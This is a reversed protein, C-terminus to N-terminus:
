ALTIGGVYNALYQEIVSINADSLAQLSAIVGGYAIDLFNGNLPNFGFYTTSTVVWATTKTVDQWAGRNIRVQFKNLSANWRLTYIHWANGVINTAAVGGNDLETRITPGTNRATIRIYGATDGVICADDTTGLDSSSSFIKEAIVLTGETASMLDSLANVYFGQAAAVSGPRPVFKGSPTAESVPVGGPTFYQFNLMGSNGASSRGNWTGTTDSYDGGVFFASLPLTSPDTAQYYSFRVMGSTVISPNTSTNKAYLEYTRKADNRLYTSTGGIVLQTSLEHPVNRTVFSQDSLTAVLSSDEFNRLEFYSIDNTPSEVIINLDAKLSYDGIATPLLGANLTRTGVRQFIGASVVNPSQVLYREEEPSFVPGNSGGGAPGTAGQPGTAGAPGTAGTVGQAGQPGTPGTSGAPGTAGTAGGPGTPGTAGTVGQAGTAGQPGTPGVPGTPGTAGQVGTAGQPGTVGAGTAGAPGTPGTPGQLGTAGQPGTAGAPGTAGQSGTPGQLGTAGQPGTAGAPGTSGISGTPGAPGQVGTAGQPGTPGQPGTEGQAGTPGAPGGAPGTVGQPGTAGRPGTPGTAGRPGTAGTSGGGGGGGTFGPAVLNGQVVLDGTVLLNKKIGKLGGIELDNPEMVSMVKGTADKKVKRSDDSM